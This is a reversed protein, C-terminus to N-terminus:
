EAAGPIAEEFALRRHHSVREVWMVFSADTELDVSELTKISSAFEAEVVTEEEEEEVGV